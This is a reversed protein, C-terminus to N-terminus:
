EHLQKIDGLAQTLSAALAPSSTEPNDKFSTINMPIEDSLILYGIGYGDGVVPGFGFLDLFPATVNSSSIRFSKSHVFIPDTLLPHVLDGGAADSISKLAYFHRDVGMGQLAMKAMNLQEDAAASFLTRQQEKSSAGAEVARM